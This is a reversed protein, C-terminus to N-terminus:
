RKVLLSGYNETEGCARLCANRGNQDPCADFSDASREQEEGFLKLCIQLAHGVSDLAANLDGIFEQSVCLSRYSRYTDTTRTSLFRAFDFLRTAGLISYNVILM